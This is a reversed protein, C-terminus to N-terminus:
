DNKVEPVGATYFPPAAKENRKEWEKVSADHLEPTIYARILNKESAQKNVGEIAARRTLWTGLRANRWGRRGTDYNMPAPMIYIDKRIIATWTTM